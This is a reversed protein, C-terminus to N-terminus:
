YINLNTADIALGKEILGRHDFYNKDLWTNLLDVDHHRIWNYETTGWENWNRSKCNDIYTGYSNFKGNTVRNLEEKQEETMNSMPFLYPKVELVDITYNNPTNLKVEEYMASIHDITFISDEYQVKVEYPLRASLDKLLLKKDEEKM